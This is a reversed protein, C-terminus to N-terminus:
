CLGLINKIPYDKNDMDGLLFRRDGEPVKFYAERLQSINKKSKRKLCKNYAEICIKSWDKNNLKDILYKVKAIMKEKTDLDFVTIESIVVDVNDFRILSGVPPVLCIWGEDIKDIFQELTLKQWCDIIGDEYVVFDTYYYNNNHIFGKFSIKNMWTGDEKKRNIIM